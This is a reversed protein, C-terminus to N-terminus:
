NIAINEEDFNWLLFILLKDCLLWYGIFYIIWNLFSLNNLETPMQILILTCIICYILITTFITSKNM